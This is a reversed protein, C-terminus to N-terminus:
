GPTTPEESTVPTLPCDPLAPGATGFVEFMAPTTPLESWCCPTIPVEFAATPTMPNELLMPTKPYVVVGPEKAPKKRPLTTTLPTKVAVTFFAATGKGSPEWRRSWQM